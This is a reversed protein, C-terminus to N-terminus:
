NAALALQRRWLGSVWDNGNRRDFEAALQAAEQQVWEGLEAGTLNARSALPHDSPVRLNLPTDGVARAVATAGVYFELLERPNRASLAIPIHRRLFATQKAVGGDRALQLTLLGLAGLFDLKGECMWYGQKFFDKTEDSGSRLGSAVLRGYTRHPIEACAMLGNLIPTATARAVDDSELCCYLEVRNDLECAACDAFRDNPLHVWEDLTQSAEELLGTHCEYQMRLYIAPRRSYGNRHLRESYDEILAELREREVQPFLFSNYIAWKYNWLLDVEPYEEPQQDSKALCWSFAILVRDGHGSLEAAQMLMLRSNYSGHDWRMADAERVAEELLEVKPTENPLGRAEDWLEAIREESM